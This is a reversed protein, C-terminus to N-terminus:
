HQSRRTHAVRCLKHITQYRGHSPKQRGAYLPAAFDIHRPEIHQLIKLLAITNITIYIESIICNVLFNLFLAWADSPSPPPPPPPFRRSNMRSAWLTWFTPLVVRM